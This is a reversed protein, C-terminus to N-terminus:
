VKCVEFEEPLDVNFGFSKEWVGPGEKRYWRKERVSKRFYYLNEENEESLEEGWKKMRNVMRVFKWLSAVDERSFSKGFTYLASGRMLRRDAPAGMDEFLPVGPILYLPSVGILVPLGCLALIDKLITDPTCGPLGLILFVLTPIREDIKHVIEKLTTIDFPRRFSDSLATDSTVLSMNLETFGADVIQDAFPHINKATIGNM